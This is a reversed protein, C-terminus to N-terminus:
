PQIVELQVGFVSKPHFFMVKGFDGVAVKDMVPKLGKNKLKEVDSEIEDTRLSLLLFGEGRNQLFKYVPSNPDSSTLVNVVLGQVMFEMGDIGSFAFAAPGLPKGKVGFLSEFLSTAKPLDNVAINFGYIGRIM